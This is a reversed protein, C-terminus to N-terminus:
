PASQEKPPVLVREFFLGAAFWFPAYDLRIYRHVNWRSRSYDWPCSGRKNLLYGTLYEASFIMSMYSLGRAWTPFKKLLRSIPKLFAACGYIPFMWLSTVGTLKPNRKRLSDLSTFVIEMCWGITGCKFFDRVFNM